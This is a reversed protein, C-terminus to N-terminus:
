NLLDFALPFDNGVMTTLYPSFFFVMGHIPRGAICWLM